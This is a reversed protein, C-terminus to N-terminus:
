SREVKRIGLMGLIGLIGLIGVIGLKLKLRFKKFELSVGALDLDFVSPAESIIDLVRM